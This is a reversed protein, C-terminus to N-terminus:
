PNALLTRRAGRVQWATFILVAQTAAILLWVAAPQQHDMLSGYLLPALAMGTDLGSYVVGYVRGTANEPAARKVILDRSPGAIGVLFGMAGFLVPVLWGPLPTGAVVLAILAALGVGVAIIRECRAPDQALFGGWVMGLGSGVMYITICAAAVSTTIHHLQRAAEPAFGQVGSMAMSFFFFFAFCVWVAPLRLFDLTHDQNPRPSALAPMRPAPPRHLPAAHLHHRNLWVLLWVAWVVAAACALAVRWSAQLALPVLLAPAVAWGLTGTIGHASYAHGLRPASVLRNMLTFDVPHFVGNGAGALAACLMLQWYHQSGAMGLVAAGILALGALLVPVPGRRDVVFGSVAQVVCSVVFFATLLAGLEAYGVQFSEKLWPFLPALLLQSFHSMSHAVGILSIVWVDERLPKSLPLSATATNM